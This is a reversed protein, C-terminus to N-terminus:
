DPTLEPLEITPNIVVDELPSIGYGLRSCGSGRDRQCVVASRYTWVLREFVPSQLLKWIMLWMIVSEKAYMKLITIYDEILVQCCDGKLNGLVDGCMKKKSTNWMLRWWLSCTQNLKVIECLIGGDRGGLILVYKGTYDEKGSDMIGQFTFFSLPETMESEKHGWPSYLGHFEGPWFVPTPLRERWWPIKGVWTEQM